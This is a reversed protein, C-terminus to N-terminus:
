DSRRARDKQLDPPTQELGTLAVSEDFAALNLDILAVETRAPDSALASASSSALGDYKANELASSADVGLDDGVAALLRQSTNDTTM